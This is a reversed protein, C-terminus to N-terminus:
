QIGAGPVASPAHNSDLGCTILRRNQKKLLNHRREGLAEVEGVAGSLAFSLPSTQLSIIGGM